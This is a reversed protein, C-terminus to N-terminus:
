GDNEVINWRKNVPGTRPAGPLMSLLSRTEHAKRHLRALRRPPTGSRELLLGLRQFTSSRSGRIAYEVITETAARALGHQVLSLSRHADKVLSPHDLVDLLTRELDSIQVAAGEIQATTIGYSLQAAPVPHFSLRAAGLRRGPRRLLVFADLGSVYQQETLRHHTLAWLGGLYYREGGLLAAALL